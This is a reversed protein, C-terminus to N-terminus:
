QGGTMRNFREGAGNIIHDVGSGGPGGPNTFVTGLKPAKTAPFKVIALSLGGSAANAWDLPVDFTGCVITQSAATCPSWDVNVARGAQDLFSNTFIFVRPLVDHWVIENISSGLSLDLSAVVKFLSFLVLSSYQLARSM